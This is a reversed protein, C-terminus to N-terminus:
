RFDSRPLSKIDISLDVLCGLSARICLLSISKVVILDSWNDISKGLSLSNEKVDM